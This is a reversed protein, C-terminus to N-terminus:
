SRAHAAKIKGCMKRMADMIAPMRCKQRIPNEANGAFLFVVSIATGEGVRKALVEKHRRFSERMYRRLLNRDVARRVSKSVAFGVRIVSNEATSLGVFARIPKEEYVRGETIIKTFIGFGRLIEVKVEM